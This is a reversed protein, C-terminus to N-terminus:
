KEIIGGGIVIDDQYFVISQGPTVARQGTSFTVKVKGKELSEIMADAEKTKYRIKAKVQIPKNINEISIWNLDSAILEKVLLDENDGLVVRNNEIDIDVVFVPKGLAIGLGRRQGITYKTIGNHVGLINGETDVFEGQTIEKKSSQRVFNDYDNDEIFCIEQSDPKSAVALGIEKAIERIETKKYKGLPFITKSLQEQTLNYLVYTQDKSEDVSKKLLYRHSEKEITAYHGTAVYDIDMSKAKELLAGFKIYRNCAICPNPTRGSEYESVFYEIVYKQFEDKM